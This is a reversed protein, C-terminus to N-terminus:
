MAIVRLPFPIVVDCEGPTGTFLQIVHALIRILGSVEGGIGGIFLIARPQRRLQHLNQCVSTVWTYSAVCFGELPRGERIRARPFLLPPVSSRRIVFLSLTRFLRFSVSCVSFLSPPLEKGDIGDKEMQETRESEAKGYRNIIVNGKHPRVKAYSNSEQQRM